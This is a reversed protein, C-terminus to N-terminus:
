YRVLYMCKPPQSIHLIFVICHNELQLSTKLNTILIFFSVIIPMVPM